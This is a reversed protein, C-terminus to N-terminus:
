VHALSVEPEDERVQPLGRVTLWIGAVLLWAATVLLAFFLLPSACCAGIVVLAWGMWRPLVRSAVVALGGVIGFVCM